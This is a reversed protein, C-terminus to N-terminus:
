GWSLGQSQICRIEVAGLGSADGSQRPCFGVIVSNALGPGSITVFAHPVIDGSVLTNAIKITLQYNSM